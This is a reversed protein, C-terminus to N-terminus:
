SFLLEGGWEIRPLGYGLECCHYFAGDHVNEETGQLSSPDDLM